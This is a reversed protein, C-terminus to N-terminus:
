RHELACARCTGKRYPRSLPDPSAFEAIDSVRVRLVRAIAFRVGLSLATLGREEVAAVLADTTGARTALQLRSLASRVRLDALQPM